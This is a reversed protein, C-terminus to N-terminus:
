GDYSWNNHIEHEIELPINFDIGYVKKMYQVTETSFAHNTIENIEETEAPDEDTIMSDHVTNVILTNLARDKIHHWAYTVGIPIIEATALSQIPYNRVNTNHEIYGSSTM